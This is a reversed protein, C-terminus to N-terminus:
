SLARFWSRISEFASTKLLKPVDKLFLAPRSPRIACLPFLTAIKFSAPIIIPTTINNHHIPPHNNLPPPDFCGQFLNSHISSFRHISSSMMKTCLTTNPKHAPLHVSKMGNLKVRQRHNELTKYRNIAELRVAHVIYPTAIRDM